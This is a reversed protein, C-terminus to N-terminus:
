IGGIHTDSSKIFQKAQKQEMMEIKFSKKSQMIHIDRVKWKQQELISKIDEKEPYTQLLAPDLNTCFVTRKAKLELSIKPEFNENKFKDINSLVKDIEKESSFIIKISNRAPDYMHSYTMNNADFITSLRRRIIPNNEKMITPDYSTRNFRFALKLTM